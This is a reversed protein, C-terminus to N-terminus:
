PQKAALKLMEVRRKHLTEISLNGYDSWSAPELYDGETRGIAQLKVARRFEQGLAYRDRNYKKVIQTLVEVDQQGYCYAKLRISPVPKQSSAINSPYFLALEDAVKWSNDTGITQWPLVGDAGLSWADWSWAVAMSNNTGIPNSSGYIVVEQGFRFKRDLVLPRYERFPEQAVVNYVLFEDLTDRQWQPRSIDARFVLRPKCTKGAVYCKSGKVGDVFALGFYRLAIYDQFNVPEDLIWPSSARSWGRSKFNNKNNLYVHFRTKDWKNRHLHDMTKSVVDVWADRYKENFAKDAWYSGNYNPEISMPWNEHMPLYFCEIPVAGRPLDKFTEGTFLGSYRRDYLTWDLAGDRWGPGCGPAIRGAQDYPVRNLVTRHRQALRYYDIDNTPLGYCNMEPLFSLTNPIVVDHVNIITKLIQKQKGVSIYLQAEYAGAKMEKPIYLEVLWSSAAQSDGAYGDKDPMMQLLPDPLNENGKSVMGYRYYEVLRRKLVAPSVESQNWDFLFKPEVVRKSVVQFGVWSGRGCDLSIRKSSADWLHNKTFYGQSHGPITQDKAPVYSDLPDIVSIQTTGVEPSGTWDVSAGGSVDDSAEISSAFNPGTGKEPVASGMCEVSDSMRGDSALSRVVFKEPNSSIAVDLGDIPMTFVGNLHSRISPVYYPELRTGNREVIFGIPGNIQKNDSLGPLTWTIRPRPDKVDPPLFTVSEPAPVLMKETSEASAVQVMLYPSSANNSNTSYVFRNPFIEQKFEDGNRTWTSGTDDMLVLGYSLGHMRAQILEVPVSLEVWDKTEAPKADISAYISNGHGICVNTFDSKYWRETPYRRHSFTSAGKIVQYNSGNGEVWDSTITSLTVRDIPRDGAVKLLLKADLITKDRLPSAEFDILSLEVISKLKLRPAAGNSGSQEEKFNSLWTDRSIPVKIWEQAVLFNSAVLGVLLGCSVCLRAVAILKHM